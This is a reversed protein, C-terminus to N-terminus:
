ILEPLLETSFNGWKLLQLPPGILKIKNKKDILISRDLISRPIDRNNDLFRNHRDVVLYLHDEVDGYESAFELFRVYNNARIVFLVTYGEYKLFSNIKGHWDVFRPYCPSCGDELYVLSIYDYKERFETFHFVEGEKRISDFLNINVTKNLVDRIMEEEPSLKQGCSILILFFIVWLFTHLSFSHNYLKKM